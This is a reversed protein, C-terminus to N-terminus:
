RVHGFLSGPLFCGLMDSVPVPVQVDQDIVSADGSEKFGGAGM